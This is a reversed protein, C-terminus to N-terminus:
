SSHFALLPIHTHFAMRKTKSRNFIKQFFNRHRMSMALMDAKVEDLYLSLGDIVDRNELLKFNIKEYRSDEQIREKFREIADFEYAKDLEGNSVHLLIVEANFGRAIDVVLSDATRQTETVIHRLQKWTEITVFGQVSRLTNRFRTKLKPLPVDAANSHGM